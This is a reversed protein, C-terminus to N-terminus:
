VAFPHLQIWELNCPTNLVQLAAVVDHFNCLYGPLSANRALLQAAMIGFKAQFDMFRNLFLACSKLFYLDLVLDLLNINCCCTKDGM